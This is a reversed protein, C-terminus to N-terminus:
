KLPLYIDTVLEAEPTRSPDNRYIEYADQKSALKMKKSRAFQHVASWSNGLHEYRGTHRVHLAQGAPLRCHHIGAPHLATPRSEFGTTFDFRGTKMDTVAHYVTIM